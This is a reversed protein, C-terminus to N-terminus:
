VLLQARRVVERARASDPATVHFVFGDGTSRVQVTSGEVGFVSETTAQGGELMHRLEVTLYEATMGPEADIRVDAGILRRTLKGDIEQVVCPAISSARHGLVTSQRERPAPQQDARATMGLTGNMALVVATVVISRNM